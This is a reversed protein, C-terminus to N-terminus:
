GRVAGGRYATGFSPEQELFGDPAPEISLQRFVHEFAKTTSHPDAQHCLGVLRDVEAPDTVETITEAGSPTLSVLVLKNGVRLLQAVHRAALPMRGLVSVVDRPLAGASKRTGRRLLWTCIFFCGIVVALAAVTTSISQVPLGFNPLQRSATARTDPSASRPAEATPPALRRQADIAAPAADSQHFAHQVSPDFPPPPTTALPPQASTPQPTTIYRDDSKVPQLPKEAENVAPAGVTSASQDRTLYVSASDRWPPPGAFSPTEASSPNAIAAAWLALAVCIFKRLM